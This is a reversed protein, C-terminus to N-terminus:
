AAGDADGQISFCSLVYWDPHQKSLAAAARDRAAMDAFLGFCTAGSGSMRAFLAGSDSLAQSVTAIVPELQRAPPELDNRMASLAVLWQQAPPNGGPLALPPNTKTTLARFIAPTSVPVRPNVLLMPFAPFNALTETDEGIGRAVLPKGRLCIPVDAGLEVALVALAAEFAPDSLPADWLAMLGHLTAAADASGGGIGSTVPLNKELHLHVPAAALGRQALLRRLGDRAKIVLNGAAVAGDAPIDAAFPGSVTFRDIEARSFGIRDGRDAFTVISELLHYGDPKQGIVHLALNIKAPAILVREFSDKMSTM